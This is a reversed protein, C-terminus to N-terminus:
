ATSKSKSKSQSGGNSSAGNSSASKASYANSMRDTPHRESTRTWPAFPNPVGELAPALEPHHRLLVDTMTQSEVYDFGVQSYVEPRFDDTFFRDSKLRRSAMLIFIRFATDSFGFGPPPTEAYMGVQLDVNDIHGYLERMEQALARDPTLEEFTELRPMRMEERFDNYRPVGRERDRTIDLTALDFLEGDARRHEMLARPYNKITVAGPNAVGLSYYLDGLSHEDMFGSTAQGQIEDFEKEAVTEDTELSLFTWDDPILPHMRYVSVFEETLQFRAGHHDKSSGTIGSLTEDDAVRGFRKRFKEGLIGWWNTNMSIDLAPHGLIGPTWEVTHIKAMLASNVLWATDFLRQDSWEPYAQKLRDCIANHEKTFLTHMLSLGLWWNEAFGTLDVGEAEPDPELRGKDSVKLKGDTFTRLQEQREKTSGYIQSGDWWHAETNTYTVSGNSGEPSASYPVTRRITMPREPWTDDEALPIEIVEDPNGRGHFFWNHNQFQIWAAALVNLTTAPKFTDRRMLRLAVERPNPEFMRPESEPTSRQPAINRAFRSGAAGMAPDELDTWVGGPLRHELAEPPPGSGENYEAVLDEPPQSQPADFLNNDRLDNRLALLNLIQLPLGPMEYWQKNKNISQFVKSLAKDALSGSM